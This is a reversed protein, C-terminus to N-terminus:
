FTKSNWGFLPRELNKFEIYIREPAVALEEGLLDCIAKSLESCREAPLDISKLEVFAAPQDTGGYLFADSSNVAVMVWQESKGLLRATMESVQKALTAAKLEDAFRKTDIRVYPL